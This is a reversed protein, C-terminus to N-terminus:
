GGLRVTKLSRAVRLGLYDSDFDEEHAIRYGSRCCSGHNYWSGGRLVHSRGEARRAEETYPGDEYHNKWHDECWEWITGCMDVLGFNNWRGEEFHRTVDPRNEVWDTNSHSWSHRPDFSDGWYYRTNEGGARCAYEWESESPLRLGDGHASLWQKAALWSLGDQVLDGDETDDSKDRSWISRRVPERGLLFARVRARHAPKEDQEENLSGMIFTGGPILHFILGSALHKFVAIRHTKAGAGPGTFEITDLHEFPDQLRASVAAIAQDQITFSCQNWLQHDDLLELYAAKGEIRAKRLVTGIRAGSDEPDADARREELSEQRASM